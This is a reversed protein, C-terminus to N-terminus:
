SQWFNKWALLYEKHSQSEYGRQLWLLFELWNKSNPVQLLQKELHYKEPQFCYQFCSVKELIKPICPIFLMILDWDTEMAEKTWGILPYWLPSFFLDTIGRVSAKKAIQRKKQVWSEFKIYLEFCCFYFFFIM